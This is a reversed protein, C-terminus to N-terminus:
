VQLGDLDHTHGPPGGLGPAEGSLHIVLPGTGDDIHVLLEGEFLGPRDAAAVIAVRSEVGPALVLERPIVSYVPGSAFFWARVPEAGDNRLVLHRVVEGHMPLEGFDIEESSVALPAGTEGGLSAQLLIAVQIAVAMASTAAALVIVAVRARVPRALFARLGGQM